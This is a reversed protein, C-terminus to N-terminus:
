AQFINKRHYHLYLERGDIPLRSIEAGGELAIIQRASASLRPSVLLRKDDQFSIFGKDFLKDITPSFLFGNRTDLRERDNAVAWPKIHSAMLLEPEALSTLPCLVPLTQLLQARFRQQGRRISTLVTVQTPGHLDAALALRSEDYDISAVIGEEIMRFRRGNRIERYLVGRLGAKWDVTNKLGPYFNETQDYITGWSAVGDNAELVRQIAEVKTYPLAAPETM